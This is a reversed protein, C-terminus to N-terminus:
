GNRDRWEVISIIDILRIAGLGKDTKLLLSENTVNEVTGFLKFPRDNSPGQKEIKVYKNLFPQAIESEM